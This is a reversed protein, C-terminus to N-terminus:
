LHNQAGGTTFREVGIHPVQAALRDDPGPVKHKNGQIQIIQPLPGKDNLVRICFVDQEGHHLVLRRQQVDWEQDQSDHGRDDGRLGNDAAHKRDDILPDGGTQHWQELNVVGRGM